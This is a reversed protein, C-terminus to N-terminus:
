RGWTTWMAVSAFLRDFKQARKGYYILSTDFRAGNALPKGGPGLFKIRKTCIVRPNRRPATMAKKWWDTSTATMCLILLESVHGVKMEHVAKDIWPKNISYPHNEYCRDRWPKILGGWTYATKARIISHENTCPDCGIPDGLLEYIRNVYGPPTCLSDSSIDGSETNLDRRAM